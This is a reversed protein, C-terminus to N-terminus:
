LERDVIEGVEYKIGKVKEPTKLKEEKYRENLIKKFIKVKEEYTKNQYLCPIKFSKDFIIEKCEDVFINTNMIAILIEEDNLIGQKKFRNFIEKGNPFDLYWGEEDEYIIGKYKLIQDRKITNEPKVYHSDLGCIIQINHKKSIELIKKNLLKQSETNHNQVELLFNDGFYDHIKLWIDEADEYKWGAICASTVIINDKPINLLLELDIRPKYYYGDINALSLIYNIDERGELNKAILCIHCNIKDKYTKIEGTKTDIKYEGTEKDIEPYEKLRDKVWYAEVSHRYKLNYEEALKYVEFQNGQNGHEGSFLCKGKYEVTQQAYAKMSEPSDAVSTNSFYSHKHYNECYLNESYDEVTYPFEFNLKPIIKEIIKKM